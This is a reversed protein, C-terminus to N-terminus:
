VGFMQRCAELGTVKAPRRDATRWNDATLRLRDSVLVENGRADRSIGDSEYGLKRSVAQSAHNDQFAESLAAEAHLHDFALTLAGARAETGFGRGHYSIGLWSTTAVERVVPFDRAHLMILGIPEDAEAFVGLGLSWSQVDWNALQDWHSRLVGQARDLPSGETWPTLFPQEDPGHVGEGALRALRGLEEDYPLRLTLRATTIKLAFTPWIDELV